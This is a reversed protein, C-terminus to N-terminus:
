KKEEKTREFHCFKKNALITEIVLVRDSLSQIKLDIKDLRAEIKELRTELYLTEM